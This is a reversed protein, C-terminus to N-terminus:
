GTVVAPRFGELLSLLEEREPAPVGFDVLVAELHGVFTDFAEDDVALPAHVAAMERGTYGAPGGTGEVFFQTQHDMLTSLDVGDFYGSVRDDAAVREHFADVAAGIAERGGLRDYLSPESASAMPM